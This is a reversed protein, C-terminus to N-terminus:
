VAGGRRGGGPDDLKVAADRAGDGVLGTRPGHGPDTPHAPHGDAPRHAVARDAPDATPDRGEDLAAWAARDPDAPASRSGAAAYRAGLRALHPERVVVVGGAGALVLGGAAALLPGTGALATAAVVAAATAVVVVVGAVGLLGGVVRRAVGSTAVVAAIGALALLAIGTLASPAAAAGGTSSRVPSAWALASAGWLLGAAVVLAACVGLLARGRRPPGERASV